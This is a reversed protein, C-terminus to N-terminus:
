IEFKIMKAMVGLGILLSTLGVGIMVWGRPDTFLTNIYEFNVFSIVGAMVFPLSGIIMASARAESSM